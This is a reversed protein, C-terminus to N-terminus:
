NVLGFARLALFLGVLLLLLGGARRIANVPVLEALKERLLIAPACAAMIAAWGGALVLGWAPNRAAGTAIIFQSKDGFQLIFLGLFSTMFAGTRWNALIDIPRRWWLMGVGAFIYALAGFLTLPAESIWQDVVSGGLAAITCNILSALALGAIVPGNRHFRLALAAALLQSRDGTEALLVAVFSTLFADM